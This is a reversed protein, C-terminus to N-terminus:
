PAAEAVTEEYKHSPGSSILQDVGVIFHRFEVYAQVYERGQEVSHDAVQRKRYADAFRLQIGAQVAEATNDALQDGKGEALARDAAAIALDVSGTAKLGTFGDGETCRHTRVLTDFFYNDAANRAVESEGRVALTMEFADRIAAEDEAGVWKLVPDITQGALAAQADKFVPGGMSDCHAAAPNSLLVALLLSSMIGTTQFAFQHAIM